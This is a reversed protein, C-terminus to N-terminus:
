WPVSWNSGHLLRHLFTLVNDVSVKQSYLLPSNSCVCLGDQDHQFWAIQVSQQREVIRYTTPNVTACEVHTFPTWLELRMRAKTKGKWHPDRKLEVRLSPYYEKILKVIPKLENDM